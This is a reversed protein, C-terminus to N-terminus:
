GTKTRCEDPLLLNLSPPVAVLPSQNFLDHSRMQTNKNAWPMRNSHYGLHHCVNWFCYKQGFVSSGTLNMTPLHHLDHSRLLPKQNTGAMRNGHYCSPLVCELFLMKSWLCSGILNMTLLHHLDHSRMQTNKNTRPMRNSHYGLHHCVNWFCYKQGFVSSGVLNMTPLHHLDHSKLLPKQNTVPM